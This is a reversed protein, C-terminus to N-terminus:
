MCRDNWSESRDCSGRKAGQWTLQLGIDAKNQHTVSQITPFILGM